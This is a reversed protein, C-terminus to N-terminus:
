KPYFSLRTVGVYLHLYCNSSALGDPFKINLNPHCADINEFISLFSKKESRNSYFYSRMPGTAPNQLIKHRSSRTCHGHHIPLHEQFSKIQRSDTKCVGNNLDNSAKGVYWAIYLGPNNQIMEEIDELPTRNSQTCLVEDSAM